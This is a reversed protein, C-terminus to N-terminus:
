GLFLIKDGIIQVQSILISDRIAALGAIIGDLLVQEKLLDDSMEM